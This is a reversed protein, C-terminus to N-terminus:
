AADVGAYRAKPPLVATIAAPTLREFPVNRYRWTGGEGAQAYARAAQPQFGGAFWVTDGDLTYLFGEHDADEGVKLCVLRVTGQARHRAGQYAGLVLYTARDVAMTAVHRTHEVSAKPRDYAQQIEPPADSLRAVTSIPASSRSKGVHGQLFIHYGGAGYSWSYSWAIDQPAVAPRQARAAKRALDACVGACADPHRTHAAHSDIPREM